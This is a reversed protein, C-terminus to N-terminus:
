QSSGEEPPHVSVSHLKRAIRELRRQDESRDGRNLQVRAQLPGAVLEYHRACGNRGDVHLLRGAAQLQGSDLAVTLPREEGLDFPRARDLQNPTATM